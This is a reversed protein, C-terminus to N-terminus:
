KLESHNKERKYFIIVILATIGYSISATVAAGTSKFMPILLFGLIITVLLGVSSALANIYHKGTSSFYFGQILVIGFFVIGPAMIRIIPTIGKFEEGFLWTYFSDPIFSLIVVIIVTFILNIRNIGSTLSLSFSKDNSNVIRSHQVTAMSRGIIWVSEAISVANSYIGVHETGYYANLLYYSLRFSLLQTFVAVQNFFGLVALKKIARAYSSLPEKVIDSFYRGTYIFSILLSAGYGIYLANIYANVSRNGAMLFSYLLWTVIMASQIFAVRNAANIRQKSILIGSNVNMVGLILSLLCTDLIYENSILNFFPLILYCMGTVAVIWMYSPIVLSIFPLRPLLYSISSSGIISTLIIIFSILTIILSQEGRGAAGTYNSLLVAIAMNSVAIFSRTFFTSLIQRIM